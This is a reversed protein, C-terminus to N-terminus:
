IESFLNLDPDWDVSHSIFGKGISMHTIFLERTMILLLTSIFEIGQVKIIEFIGTFRSGLVRIRRLKKETSTLGIETINKKRDPINIVM